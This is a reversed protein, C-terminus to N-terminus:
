SVETLVETMVEREIDNILHDIVGAARILALNVGEKRNYKDKPNCIAITRVSTFDDLKVDCTTLGGYSNLERQLGEQRIVSLEVPTDYGNLMRFHTIRTRFGYDRFQKLLSIKSEPSNM